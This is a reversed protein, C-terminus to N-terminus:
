YYKIFTKNTAQHNTTVHVTNKSTTTQMNGAWEQPMPTHTAIVSYVVQLRSTNDLRGQVTSRRIQHVVPFLVPKTPFMPSSGSHSFRSNSRKQFIRWQGNQNNTSFFAFLISSSQNSVSPDRISSRGALWHGDNYYVPCLSGFDRSYSWYLLNLQVCM